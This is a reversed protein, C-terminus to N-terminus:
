ASHLFNLFTFIKQQGGNVKIPQHKTSCETCFMFATCFMFRKEGRFLYNRSGGKCNFTPYACDRQKGKDNYYTPFYFYRGLVQVCSAGAAIFFSACIGFAFGAIRKTLTTKRTSTRVIDEEVKPSKEDNAGTNKESLPFEESEM